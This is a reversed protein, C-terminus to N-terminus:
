KSYAIQGWSQEIEAVLETDISDEFDGSANKEAISKAVEIVCQAQEPSAGFTRPASSLNILLMEAVLSNPNDAARKLWAPLIKLYADDSILPLVEYNDDILDNSIEDWRHGALMDNLSDCEICRHKTVPGEIRKRPFATQIIEIVDPM